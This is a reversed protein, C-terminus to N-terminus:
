SGDGKAALAPKRETKVVDEVQAEVCLKVSSYWQLPKWQGGDRWKCAELRM